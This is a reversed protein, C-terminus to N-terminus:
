KGYAKKKELRGMAGGGGGQFGKEALMGSTTPAKGGTALKTMPKGPHMGSEHKHIEKDILKKDMAADDHKMVRGGKARMPM